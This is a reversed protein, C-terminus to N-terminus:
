SRVGGVAVGVRIRDDFLGLLEGDGNEAVLVNKARKDNHTVVATAADELANKFNQFTLKAQKM